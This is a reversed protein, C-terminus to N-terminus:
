DMTEFLDIIEDRSLKKISENEKLNLNIIDDALEKKYEKIFQIKFLLNQFDILTINNGPLIGLSLLETATESVIGINYNEKKLQEKFYNLSTSKGGCPGGTFAIKISNM